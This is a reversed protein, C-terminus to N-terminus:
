TRRELKIARALDKVAVSVNSGDDYTVGNVQYTTNGLGDMKKSLKDLASVVENNSGNQGRSNMMSSIAGLNANVGVSATGGLLSSITSAGSQVDSLDLVPRITPQADIDSSVMDSIKSITSSLNNTATEGLSTGAKDVQNGMKGIGIIYGEGLWKGSQIALKSPSESQQGDNIGQAAKAGLAYGADYAAQKKANIGKIFGGGLHKGATKGEEDQTEFGDVAKKAADKAASKIGSEKAEIGDIVKDGLDKAAAKLDSKISNSTFAKVFKDVADEGIRELNTAFTLLPSSDASEMSKALSVIKNVGDVASQISDTSPLSSCFEGLSEAFYPLEDGFGDLNKKAGKLDANALNSLAKIAKVASGVTTVQEDTFTGLSSVFGKIGEGVKPLQEAFTGLENDGVIAALWGGANPITSSAQALAKIANAACNVTSVQEDTFTGINKVFSAIGYGLIPFQAAFAALDNEGVISAIWGGSNPIESSAQALTKIANAACDVTAVQEDTFTGINKLFQAIGFGLVPFQAAFFALDNEGVISALLGGTNPIEAAASALTKVAKAACEVTTVQDDTFTGINASFAALGAGLIPLQRAFTELSNGGGFLSALGDVVNAATLVLIAEALTKIGNMSEPTILTAGAIFPKLALMFASLELGMAVLGLGGLSLMGNIFDAVTLALIIAALIGAGALATEDITKVGAIFPELKTMFDSLLTAITPLTSMAGAAFGAIIGGVFAGIATGIKEMVVIGKDLFEEANPIYTMLAGLAGLVVAMGAILVALAAMAPYAMTAAPGIVSLIVLVGSLGLLLISLATVTKISPQINLYAMVGLIVALEAVVLGLLAMAGIGVMAGSAAAGILSLVTMVGALTLLLTSLAIASSITSEAPLTALLYLVGGIAVIVATLTLIMGWANKALGTAAVVLALVAMVGMMAATAGALKTSDITSLVYISTALVAIAVTLVILNGLCNKALKTVAILGAMVASLAAVAVIGKVLNEVPVMGLLVAILALIGIAAAVSILTAGIKEVNKSGTLLKTAAMLAIMIGAFATIMITGKAFGEWSIMSLMFATLAMIAIAGSIAILAGGIKSINTSGTILKTVAMLGVIMGAFVAVAITGKVLEGTDMGGLMKAVLAMIGIAAAIKLLTPGVTDVNKSGTILKTAAMLGVIIGGFATVAITGQILEDIHMDGLMKAVIAMVGIALAVKMLTAGITEVNKSGSILKTAAMLGVMIGAFAVIAVSGQVLAGRDMGGLAKAVLAMILLALALKTMTKGFKDINDVAKGKVLLGFAAIVGAIAIVLGALGLFGQKAEEPSLSGLMKVTAALLLMAMGIGALGSSLGQINIGDKLSATATASSLKDMAFALGALLVALVAVVAVANWLESPKFFTLVIIAGVLMLLTQGLTKIADAKISFAVSNLVNAFGKVVKSFSKVVKTTSKIVKAIPKASKKLVEGTGEFVEGLGGLMSGVGELPAGIAKATKYATGTIGLGMVGALIAGFDLGGIWDLMPQFVDKIAGLSDPIGNQLGAVLGAIIFGGIAAFVTSPSHIGLFEKVKAVLNSVMEVAANWVSVCGDRLGQVLGAIADGSIGAFESRSLFATIREKIIKGLESIVQGAVGFYKAWESLAESGNFMGSLLDPIQKIYEPIKKFFNVVADFAADFASVIGKAIDQPLNESKSLTWIWNRFTEIASQIPPIVWEFLKTFDLMGDIFDRLKVVAEGVFAAVDLIGLGFFQLLQIAASFVIKLPGGVVTLVIDIAAFIGKFVSQFKLGTANLEGTKEDTLRLSETFEKLSRIVGYLRVGMVELSPPNFINIWASKIANGMDLIAGGIDKFSGILLDRGSTKSMEDALDGISTGAKEAEQELARYLAIEDETLGADKLKEDTLKNFAETVQETEEATTEMTLGYKKHAAEVEEMSLKYVQGSQWATEGLDVLYQVVRPDYGAEKLLDRRDPNDGWNNFDGMWVRDVVDQFYELSGSVKAVSEVVKKVKDLKETIATWPTAFDLAIQLVRNRADSMKNIFGTLTDALPTLLAKAEEFDGVILKWTQSWGSQASEKMVDWLQTFTKVKTAADEATRAFQLASKIEEKNKGSKKALAEAAKDIADAEGYQAEASKIAAEIAEKSLGTYEAVYENAGSTTFKKLTETLVKSTLWGDRLSERFSGRAEIAAEAGTGLLKSTEKLANQFMEGGMGANVVSNWDMLKVTGSALAQSLQYMATSAQQSTSGSVAALNAIGQIANVSTDLDIGAATFTGINRTMETFNYITKDAYANLEELAKNVDDITSGKSATNALITQTSNIQTEYESFGTKVPDITLASVIRKGANVASNTINALATVGMVQMASFKASVTEVATGLGNMNVNKAANGVNELGKTAGSFHLKQKLKDLTSMTTSVNSEFHRNDFRMEVVKSDITTSM